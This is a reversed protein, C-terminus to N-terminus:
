KDRLKAGLARLLLGPGVFLWGEIVLAWNGVSNGIATFVSRIPSFFTPWTGNVLVVMFIGGLAAAGVIALVGGAKELALGVNDRM